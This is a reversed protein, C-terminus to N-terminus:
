GTAIPNLAAEVERVCEGVSRSVRTGLFRLVRFGMAQLQNSQRTDHIRARLSSHFALGDVYILLHQDPFAFDAVTIVRGFRDAVAFQKDPEPLSAARLAQLLRYELPSGCGNSRAEEWDPGETAVRAAPADGIARIPEEALVQLQPYVLRWNLRGHVRQNRYSRLCRYCSAPCDHGALHQVASRAVLPFRNALEQLLGSGGLVSDVWIIELVEEQHDLKRTLVRVEIDDEDIEFVRIAGRVTAWALSWAWSVGEEGLSQVGPVILRLTDARDQHGLVVNAPTGGCREDHPDRDARPDRAQGNVRRQEAILRPDPRLEGCRPCLRFGVAAATGDDGTQMPGHNIWWIEEQRRMELRWDGIGFTQCPVDRQPHARVDFNQSSREEETEPEVESPFAQFAGTDWATVSPGALESGCRFCNNAGGAPNALGCVSCETLDFREGGRNRSAAGPRNMAVGTVKWRHGRAYVIQGPAYERQAQLRGAFVPDPDFALSLSGPDGPFSYGPLVGSEALVRPLYAYRHDTRLKVALNRFAQEADRERQTQRVQQGLQRMHHVADEILAARSEITTRVLDPTENVVTDIWQEWDPRVRSLGPGFVNRSRGVSRTLCQGIQNSLQQMNQANVAGEESILGELNAPIELRAEQLVLSRIHRAVAQLNAMNFRPPPIAGVIVEDPHDFFYGDHPTNRAFGVAAGMRSRRGTRGARQAYNAPSPPVNRMTVAELDGINVGLELTPTCVLVNYDPPNEQFGQEVEARRDDSVAASHEAPRLSPAHEAAILMANLNGDAIPGQWPALVGDCGPRPCIQGRADGTGVRGCINCRAFRENREFELVGYEIQYGSVQNAENGIGSWTLWQERELWELVAALSEATVHQGLLRRWLKQVGAPIGTLNWTSILKYAGTNESSSGPRLFAVPLGVQRGPTIGFRSSLRDGSRLRNRIVEHNVAFRQRMFDLLRRTANQAAEGDLHQEACLRRFEQSHLAEDLGAYRVAILGLRELSSRVNAALVFESLLGGQITDRERQIADRSRTRRLFGLEVFSHYIEDTLWQLDHRGPNRLLAQFVARRLRLHSEIGEIFRAQHAADQRSDCFVLIKKNGEPLERLLTRSVHTLASSNGLSVPTLIDFRGYRSNCVPCRNGRGRLVRVPRLPAADCVCSRRAPSESVSLCQPCLYAEADAVAVEDEEETEPTAEATAAVDHRVEEDSTPEGVVADPDGIMASHLPPTVFVRCAPCTEFTRFCRQSAM